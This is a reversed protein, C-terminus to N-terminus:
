GCDQHSEQLPTKRWLTNHFRCLGRPWFIKAPHDTAGTQDDRDTFKELNVESALIEVDEPDDNVVRISAGRPVMGVGIVSRMSDVSQIGIGQSSRLVISGMAVPISNQTRIITSTRQMNTRDQTTENGGTEHASRNNHVREGHQAAFLRGDICRGHRETPRWRRNQLFSQACATREASPTTENLTTPFRTGGCFFTCGFTACWHVCRHPHLRSPKGEKSYRKSKRMNYKGVRGYNVM